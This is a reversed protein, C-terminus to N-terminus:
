ELRQNALICKREAFANDRAIMHVLLFHIQELVSGKRVIGAPESHAILEVDGNGTAAASM